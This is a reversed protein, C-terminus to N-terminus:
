FGKIFMDFTELKQVGPFHNIQMFELHGGDQELDLGVKVPSHGAPILQDAERVMLQHTVQQRTSGGAGGGAGTV